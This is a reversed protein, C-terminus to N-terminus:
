FDYKYVTVKGQTNGVLLQQKYLGISLPYQLLETESNLFRIFQGSHHLMHIMHNNVDTILINCNPDCVVDAPLFQFQLVQGLYKCKVEGSEYLIYVQGSLKSTCDVVCVDLNCM